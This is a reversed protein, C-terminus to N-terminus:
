PLPVLRYLREPQGPASTDFYLQSTNTLTATDLTVWADIPGFRNICDLRVSGGINGTVTIAPVFHLDLAPIVGLTGTQWARYYRQPPLPESVDFYYQSTSALTVTDLPLWNPTASLSNAYDLNLLSGAEGTLKVGPVSRREIPTIVNLMAPSGAVAGPPNTVVVTYAGAQAFQVNTLELRSNTSCVLLNTANLYWLYSLPMSGSARVWLDVVSGAEATQSKPPVLIAPPESDGALRAVYSRPTQNVTTFFGGIVIKGDPQPSVCSVGRNPGPQGGFFSNDLSGDALLCVLKSSSRSWPDSRAVLIQGGPRLAFSTLANQSVSAQLTACVFSSDLLGNAHLRAVNTAAAGNVSTFGGGILIRGDPQVAFGGVVGNAGALGSQFSTDLSGDLNLRAVRNRTVGNVLTFYGGVLIKGDPQVALGVVVDDPGALGNLFGADLSGDANLRALRNRTVGNISTFYGGVLIKGNSQLAMCLVEDDAGALGHLFSDDLSGNPNLRAIRGRGLGNVLTFGGGILIKGDSQVSLCGVPTPSLVMGEVNAAFSLDVSGDTNLRATNMPGVQSVSNFVGSVLIKQDPQVALAYIYKNPGTPGNCFTSDPSGDANLRALDNGATAAFSGGFVIKGDGQLVISNVRGGSGAVGNPLSSDLSGDPNLRALGDQAAGNVQSFVGGILLKGDSQVLLLYVWGASAVFSPDLSGDANLRAIGTHAAGGISSFVGGIIIEGGPLCTISEISGGDNAAMESLCSADLSGDANLRAFYNRAVGNVQNFNGAILIRGDSQLAAANLWPQAFGTGLIANFTLDLTGDSNLRAISSRPVGNVSTFGGSLLLKGDSQLILSDVSGGWLAYVNPGEVQTVFSDDVSGNPNLRAINTHAIENTSIFSGGILIKGDNQVALCNITPTSASNGILGLGSLFSLDTSGDANIRALSQRLAGHVATFNGGILVKGDSLLAVANVSGNVTSGPDFSLDLDGPAGLTRDLSGALLLLGLQLARLSQVKTRLRMRFEKNNNASM